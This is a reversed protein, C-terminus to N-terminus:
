VETWEVWCTMVGSALTAGNMNVALTEAAGRLIIPQDNNNGFRFFSATPPTSGSLVVSSPRDARIVGVATGLSVPNVTYTKVTATAAANNSDHPVDTLTSATGGSNASSRKIFQVSVINSSGTFEVSIMQIKITKTGSGTITFIDTALLSLTVSLAGASYTQASLGSDTIPLASQDSAITVPMSASMTTQGLGLPIGADISALTTNATTQNAATSAGAPLSVTGSINNLNWTGSQTALINSDNAVTVRPIGAGSAGTGTTVASGGFQSVNEVWPSTSQTVAQTAPLNTVNVKLSDSVNGIPTEDSAGKIHTDDGDNYIGPM